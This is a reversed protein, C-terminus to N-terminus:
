QHKVNRGRQLAAFVRQEDKREERWLNWREYFFCLSAVKANRKGRCWLPFSCSTPSCHSADSYCCSAVRLVLGNSSCGWAAVNARKGWEKKKQQQKTTTPTQCNPHRAVYQRLFVFLFLPFFCYYSRVCGQSCCCCYFFHAEAQICTNADYLFLFFFFLCFVM